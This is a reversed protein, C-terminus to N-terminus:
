SIESHQSPECQYQNAAASMWHAHSWLRFISAIIPQALRNDCSLICQFFFNLWKSRFLQTVPPVLIRDPIGLLQFINSVIQSDIDLWNSEWYRTLKVRLISDIQSEIDLWNSEWYRTLKVRLISDIQSEIDFWNSEWYRTLKVRLISDIQSEIDLWNSKWYRTLKVRLISDIQSEIDLWNSEWYRTM